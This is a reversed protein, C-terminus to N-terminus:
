RVIATEFNLAIRNLNDFYTELWENNLNDQNIQLFFTDMALAFLGELQNSTLTLKADNM